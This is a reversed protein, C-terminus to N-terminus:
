FEGKFTKQIFIVCDGELLITNTIMSVMIRAKM